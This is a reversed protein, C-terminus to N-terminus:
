ILFNGGNARTLPEWSTGGDQNKAYDDSILVWEAGGSSTGSLQNDVNVSDDVSSLEQVTAWQGSSFHQSGILSHM